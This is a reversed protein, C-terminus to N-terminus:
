QVVLSRAATRGYVEEQYMEKAFTPPVIFRGRTTARALYRFRYVGPPMEDVFYLVRDDRIESRHWAHSFGVDPTRLLEGLSGQTTNLSFDVGELGAPLPDDIAVFRRLTPVLVTLDVLVLDGHKMESRDSTPPAEGSLDGRSLPTMTKQVLFGRELPERPLTKRAYKLRAEFFLTGSGKQQFILDGGTELDKM